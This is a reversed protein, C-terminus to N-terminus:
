VWGLVEILFLIVETGATGSHGGRDSAVSVLVVGEQVLVLSIIQCVWGPGPQAASVIGSCRRRYSSEMFEVTGAVATCIPLMVPCRRCGVCWRVISGRNAAMCPKSHLFPSDKKKRGPATNQPRIDM